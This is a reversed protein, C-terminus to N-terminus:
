FFLASQEVYCCGSSFGYQMYCVGLYFISKTVASNERAGRLEDVFEIWVVVFFHKKVFRQSYFIGAGGGIIELLEAFHTERSIDFEWCNRLVFKARRRFGLAIEASLEALFNRTTTAPFVKSKPRM